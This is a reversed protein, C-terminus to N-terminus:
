VYDLINIQFDPFNFRRLFSLSYRLVRVVHVEKSYENFVSLSALNDILLALRRYTRGKGLGCSLFANFLDSSLANLKYELNAPEPHPNDFDIEIRDLYIKYTRM